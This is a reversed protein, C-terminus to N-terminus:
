KTLFVPKIVSGNETQMKFIYKGSPFRDAPIQVTYYGASQNQVVTHVVNKGRMDFVGLTVTAARPLCYGVAGSLVKVISFPEMTESTRMVAVAAQSGSILSDSIEPFCWTCANRDLLAFGGTKVVGNDWWVSTMGRKRVARAYYGAHLARAATNSKDISGWEGIVVPIGRAPFKKYIRDLEADCASKDSASGWTNTGPNDMSFNNPWYTHQSIIIRTDNNPIVLADQAAAIATAAHTPIMIHRLANNGGGARITNVIALNYANLVTRAAATGGTWETPDGKLRPENLTEFILYDGYNKFRDAIQAWLKSIKDTVGTQSSATLTVWEDHHTNLIAYMGNDLVYKVVEEVRDMWAQDVTYNPASGFHNNWTVPVRVTKFGRNKLADIMAKTTKPNGWSTETNLGSSGTADLTNGLNWGIKM